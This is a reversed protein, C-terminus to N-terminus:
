AACQSDYTILFSSHSAAPYTVIFQLIPLAHMRFLQWYSCVLHSRREIPGGDHLISEVYNQDVGTFAGYPLSTSLESWDSVLQLILLWTSVFFPHVCACRGGLGFMINAGLAYKNYKSSTLVPTTFIAGDLIPDTAVAIMARYLLLSTILEIQSLTALWSRERENLIRCRHNSCSTSSQCRVIECMVEM